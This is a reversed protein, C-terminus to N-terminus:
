HQKLDEAPEGFRHRLRYDLLTEIGGRRERRGRKTARLIARSLEVGRNAREILRDHEISGVTRVVRQALVRPELAQQPAHMERGLWSSSTMHAANSPRGRAPIGPSM